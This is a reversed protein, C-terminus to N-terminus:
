TDLGAIDNGLSDVQNVIADFNGAIILRSSAPYLLIANIIAAGSAVSVNPDWADLTATAGDSVRAIRNRGTGGITAFTGGLYVFGNATDHAIARVETLSGGANPDWADLTATAGTTLRAIRNRTEAPIIDVVSAAGITTFRGGISLKSNAADYLM